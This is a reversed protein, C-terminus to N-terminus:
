GQTSGTRYVANTGMEDLIRGEIRSQERYYVAERKEKLKSLAKRRSATEVYAARAEEKQKEATELQRTLTEVERQLRRIYAATYGQFALDPAGSRRDLFANRAANERAKIDNRISLCRGTARGLAIECEREAHERLSLIKDLRFQFRRM